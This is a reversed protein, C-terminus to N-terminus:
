LVITISHEPIEKAATRSVSERRHLYGCLEGIAWGITLSAVVPMAKAMQVISRNQRIMNRLVRLTLLFPLFLTGLAFSLRIIQSTEAARTEAFVQGWEVREFLAENIPMIPRDQFTVIRDDLYIKHGHRLLAWHTTTEHYTREWIDKVAFLADRKYSVNVDSVFDRKGPIFPRGYRGFDCYYWAWNLPRDVANEVAGGIVSYGILERHSRLIQECWDADPVAHDETMAVIPGQSNSLGVSRLRDYLDHRHGSGPTTAITEIELAPIFNVKPFSNLLHSIDHLGEIYPVIIEASVRQTQEYISSLIRRLAEPGSVLTIIVSLQIQSKSLPNL